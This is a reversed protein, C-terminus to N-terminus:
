RWSLVLQFFHEAQALAPTQRDCAFQYAAVEALQVVELLETSLETSSGSTCAMECPRPPFLRRLFLLRIKVDPSNGSLSVSIIWQTKKLSNVLLKGMFFDPGKKEGLVM